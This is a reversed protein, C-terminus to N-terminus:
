DDKEAYYGVVRPAGEFDLTVYGLTSGDDDSIEVDARVGGKYVHDVTGLTGAEVGLEPIAEPIPVLDLERTRSDAVGGKRATVTKHMLTEDGDPSSQELRAPTIRSWVPFIRCLM